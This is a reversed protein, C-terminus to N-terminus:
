RKFVNFTERTSSTMVVGPVCDITLGGKRSATAFQGGLSRLCSKEDQM